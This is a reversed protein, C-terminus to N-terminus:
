SAARSATRRDLGACALRTAGFRLLLFGLLCAALGQWTGGSVWYWAASLLGIRLAAGGLLWLGPYQLRPLRQVVLWLSGMYVIGTLVGAAFSTVLFLPDDIM